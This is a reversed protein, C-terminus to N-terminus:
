MWSRYEGQSSAPVTAPSANKYRSGGAPAIAPSAPSAAPAADAAVASVAPAPRAPQTRIDSVKTGMSRRYRSDGSRAGPSGSIAM